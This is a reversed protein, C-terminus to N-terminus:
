LQESPQLISSSAALFYGRSRARACVGRALAATMLSNCARESPM